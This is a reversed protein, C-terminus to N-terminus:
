KREGFRWLGAAGVVFNVVGALFVVERAGLWDFLVPALVLCIFMGGFEIAMRFRVVPVLRDPPFRQQFVDIHALDNMPGGLAAFAASIMMLPLSRLLALGAFGIGLVMFGWGMVRMPRRMTINSLVVAGTVNGVGYSALLFGYARVDGPLIEKILLAIGLPIVLSWAGSTLSKAYVIFRLQPEHELVKFGSLLAGRISKTAERAPIAEPLNRRLSTVAWASFGFSVADLTFFHIIPITGTLLGVLSPGVARALRNTTGMLGNSAQLLERNPALVPVVALLAPEFFASLAAVGLAVVLLLAINVPAFWTWVVPILVLAARALDAYVMTRRPNWRDSWYGGILGFVLIAGAQAASLYGANAGILGVAIWTLAVKYIEDGVASLAEGAWLTFIPRHSLARYLKLNKWPHVGHSRLM